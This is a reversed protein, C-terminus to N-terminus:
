GAETDPRRGREVAGLTQSGLANGGGGRGRETTIPRM